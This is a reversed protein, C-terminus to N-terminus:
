DLCAAISRAAARLVPKAELQPVELLMEVAAYGLEVALRARAYDDSKARGSGKMQRAILRAV